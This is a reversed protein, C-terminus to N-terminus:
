GSYSSFPFDLSWIAEDDLRNETDPLCFSEKILRCLLNKQKCKWLGSVLQM